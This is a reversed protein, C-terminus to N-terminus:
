LCELADLSLSLAGVDVRRPYATMVLCPFAGPEGDGHCHCHGHCYVHLPRVGPSPGLAAGASAQSRAEKYRPGCRPFDLM